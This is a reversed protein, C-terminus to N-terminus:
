GALFRVASDHEHAPVDGHGGPNAHLSKRPSAFADFLALGADRPILRDHWQLLFRVPVTISAAAHALADTAGVLGFVAASVRPEAAVLPIGVASGLSVGWFGIRDGVDLTGTLTDLVSRWEPVARSTQLANYEAVVAGADRGASMRARIETAYRDHDPTRPRDGHGPADLTVVALGATACHRARATIGPARRHQGGGHASLVLGTIEGPPTWLVGPVGDHDFDRETIGDATTTTSTYRM